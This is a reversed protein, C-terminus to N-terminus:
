RQFNLNPQQKLKSGFQCTKLCKKRTLELKKKEFIACYQMSMVLGNVPMVEEVDNPVKDINTDCCVHLVM